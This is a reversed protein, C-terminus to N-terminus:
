PQSTSVSDIFFDWVSFDPFSFQLFELLFRLPLDGWMVCSISFLSAPLYFFYVGIVFFFFFPLFFINYRFFNFNQCLIDLFDPVRRFPWILLSLPFFGWDFACFINEVFMIFSFNGPSTLHSLPYSCGVARGFTQLEFGLLWM